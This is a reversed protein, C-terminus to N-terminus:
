NVSIIEIGSEDHEPDKPEVFSGPSQRAVREKRYLFQSYVVDNERCWAAGSLGSDKWRQIKDTWAEIKAEM